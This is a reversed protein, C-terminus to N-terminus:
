PPPSRGPAGRGDPRPLSGFDSPAAAPDRLAVRDGARLGQEIVVFDRNSPGLVVERTACAAARPRRLLRAPRRARVGGGPARSLARAASRSRSRSPARTMGPRLRPETEKIQVTVGFFKAGRREKEEQALTGM